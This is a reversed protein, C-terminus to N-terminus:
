GPSNGYVIITVDYYSAGGGSFRVDCGYPIKIPTTSASTITNITASTAADRILISSSTIKNVWVEAYRDAAVTYITAATVSGTYNTVSVMRIGGGYSAM